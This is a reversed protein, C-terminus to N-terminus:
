FRQSEEQMPGYAIENSLWICVTNMDKSKHM